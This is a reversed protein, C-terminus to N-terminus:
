FVTVKEERLVKEDAEMTTELIVVVSPGGLYSTARTVTALNWLDCPDGRAWSTRAPPFGLVM